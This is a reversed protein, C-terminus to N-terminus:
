FLQELDQRYVETKEAEEERFYLVWDWARGVGASSGWGFERGGQDRHQFYNEHFHNYWIKDPFHLYLLPYALPRQLIHKGLHSSFRKKPHSGRHQAPLPHWNDFNRYLNGPVMKFMLNVGFELESFEEGTYLVICCHLDFCLFDTFLLAM